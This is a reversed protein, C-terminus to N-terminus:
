ERRFGVLQLYGDQLNPSVAQAQAVPPRPCLVRALTFGEEEPVQDVVM